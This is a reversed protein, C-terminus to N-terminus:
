RIPQGLHPNNQLIEPHLTCQEQVADTKQEAVLNNVIRFPKLTTSIGSARGQWSVSSNQLSDIHVHHAKLLSSNESLLSDIDELTQKLTQGQCIGSTFSRSIKQNFAILQDYGQGFEPATVLNVVRLQEKVEEYKEVNGTQQYLAVSRELDAITHEADNRRLYLYSRLEYAEPDNPDLEIARNIDALAEDSARDFTSARQKYAEAHTPDLRIAEDYEQRLLENSKYLQCSRGKRYANGRQTYIKAAIYPSPKLKLANDFDAIAQQCLEPKLDQRQLISLGRRYLQFAQADISSALNQSPGLQNQVMTHHPSNALTAEAWHTLVLIAGMIALSSLPRSKMKILKSVIYKLFWM